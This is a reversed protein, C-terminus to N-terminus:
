VGCSGRQDAMKAFDRGIAGVHHLGPWRSRACPRRLHANMPPRRTRDLPRAAPYPQRRQVGVGKPKRAQGLGKLGFMTAPKPADTGSPRWDLLHFTPPATQGAIMKLREQLEAATLEGDVYLVGRPRDMKATWKLFRGDTAIAHALSLAFMTKGVGRWAYVMATGREQILNEV